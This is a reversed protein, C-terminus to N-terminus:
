RLSRRYSTHTLDREEPRNKSGAFDGLPHLSPLNDLEHGSM